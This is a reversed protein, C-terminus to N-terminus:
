VTEFQILKDEWGEEDECDDPDIIDKVKEIPREFADIADTLRNRFQILEKLDYIPFAFGSIDSGDVGIEVSEPDEITIELEPGEEMQDLMDAGLGMPAQSLSKEIAM